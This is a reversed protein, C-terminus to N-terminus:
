RIEAIEPLEIQGIWLQCAANGGLQPFRHGVRLLSDSFALDCRANEGRKQTGTVALM